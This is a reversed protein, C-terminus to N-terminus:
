SGHRLWQDLVWTRQRITIRARPRIRIYNAFVTRAKDLNTGAYFMRLVRRQDM